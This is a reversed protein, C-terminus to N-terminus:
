EERLHRYQRNDKTGIKDPGLRLKGAWGPFIGSNGLVVWFWEPVVRSGDPVVGSGCRFWEPVSGSDTGSM